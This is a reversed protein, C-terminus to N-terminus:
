ATPSADRIKPRAAPQKGIKTVKTIKQQFGRADFPNGAPVGASELSVLRPAVAKSSSQTGAERARRSEGESIQTRCLTFDPFLSVWAEGLRAGNRGFVIRTV